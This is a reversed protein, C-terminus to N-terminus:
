RPPERPYTRLREFGKSRDLLILWTKTWIALEGDPYVLMAECPEGRSYILLSAEDVVMLDPLPGGKALDSVVPLNATALRAEGSAPSSVGARALVFPKFSYRAM